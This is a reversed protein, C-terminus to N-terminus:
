ARRLEPLARFLRRALERGARTGNNGIKVAERKILALADRRTRPWRIHYLGCNRCQYVEANFLDAVNRGAARRLALEAEQRSWYCRLSM